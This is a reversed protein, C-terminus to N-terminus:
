FQISARRETMSFATTRSDLSKPIIMHVPRCPQTSGRREKSGTLDVIRLGHAVGVRRLVSSQVIRQDFTGFVSCKEDTMACAVLMADTTTMLPDELMIQDAIRIATRGQGIGYLGIKGNRVLQGVRGAAEEYAYTGRKEAILGLVEGVALISMRLSVNRSSNLLHKADRKKECDDDPDALAQLLCSDIHIVEDM